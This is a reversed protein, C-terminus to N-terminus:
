PDVLENEVIETSLNPLDQPPGELLVNTAGPSGTTAPSSTGPQVRLTTYTLPGFQYVMAGSPKGSPPKCPDYAAIRFGRWGNQNWSFNGLFRKPTPRFAHCFLFGAAAVLCFGTLLRLFRHKLAFRMTGRRIRIAPKADCRQYSGSM